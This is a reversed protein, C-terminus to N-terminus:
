PLSEELLLVAIGTPVTGVLQAVESRTRVTYSFRREDVWANLQETNDREMTADFVCVIDADTFRADLHASRQTLAEAGHAVLLKPAVPDRDLADTRTNWLVMRSVRANNWAEVTTLEALSAKETRNRIMVTDLCAFTKTAGQVHAALCLCSETQKLHSDSLAPMGGALQVYLGLHALGETAGPTELPLQGDVHWEQLGHIPQLVRSHSAGNASVFAVMDNALWEAIIFTGRYLRAKPNRHRYVVREGRLFRERMQRGHNELDNAGSEAMRRAVAGVSVLGVAASECPMGILLISRPRGSAVAFHRGVGLLWKVWYPARVFGGDGEAVLIETPSPDSDPTAMENAVGM